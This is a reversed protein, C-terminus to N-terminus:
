LGAFEHTIRVFSRETVEPNGQKIPHINLDALEPITSTAQLM